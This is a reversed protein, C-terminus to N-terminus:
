GRGRGWGRGREGKNYREEDYPAGFLINDRISESQVWSEQAAYAVGGARPLGFRSGLGRPEFHMEGLLAMLVSTKGAGTPGILLNIKGRKFALTNDVRLRFTRRPNPATPANPAPSPTAAGSATHTGTAGAAGASWTFSADRVGLFWGDDDARVDAALAAGDATTLSDTTFADLLESNHLFDNVRGLSVKATAAM